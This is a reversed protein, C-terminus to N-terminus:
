VATYFTFQGVHLSKWSFVILPIFLIMICYTSISYMQTFLVYECVHMHM